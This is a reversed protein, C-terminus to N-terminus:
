RPFAEPSGDIRVTHTVPDFNPPALRHQHGLVSFVYPESPAENYKLWWGVEHYHCLFLKVAVRRARAHIQAPPLKGAECHKRAETTKGYREVDAAAQEAYKGNENAETMQAKRIAYFRGYYSDKHNCTKVFAEGLKFACLTKLTANWPRKQGKEWKVGPALGAFSFLAGPHRCHEPSLDIHALLGAAIVPGCGINSRAWIGLKHSASYTDLLSKVRSEMKASQEEVWDLAMHPARADADENARIQSQARIRGEQWDYYLKVLYRAQRENMTEAARKADRSLREIVPAFEGDQDLIPTSMTTM